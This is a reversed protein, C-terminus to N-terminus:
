RSFVVVKSVTGRKEGKLRGLGGGKWEERRCAGGHLM